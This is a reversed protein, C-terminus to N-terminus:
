KKEDDELELKDGKAADFFLVFLRSFRDCTSDSDKSGLVFETVPHEIMFEIIM